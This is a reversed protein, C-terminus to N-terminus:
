PLQAFLSPNIVLSTNAMLLTHGDPASRAVAEAGINGSAGPRNDVLAPQGLRAALREAVIRALLDSSGGPPLPVVIRVPRSPYPAPQALATGVVALLLFAFPSLLVHRNKM